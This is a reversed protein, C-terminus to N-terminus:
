FLRSFPVEAKMYPRCSLRCLLALCKVHIYERKASFRLKALKYYKTSIHSSFPSRSLFFNTVVARVTSILVNSALTLADRDLSMLRFLVISVHRYLTLMFPTASQLTALHPGFQGFQSIQAAMPMSFKTFLGFKM